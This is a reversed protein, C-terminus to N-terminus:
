WGLRVITITCSGTGGRLAASHGEPTYIDIRGVTSLKSGGRDVVTYNTGDVSIVSGLPLWNCAVYYPNPMGNYVKKGSATVGNSKGCCVACACYHTYKGSIKQGLTFGDRSQVGNPEVGASKTGVYKIETVPQKTVASSLEERANEEGNVYTIKYTVLREGDVGQTETRTEGIELSSDTKTQTDHEITETVTVTKVETRFVNIVTGDEVVTDADPECYDNDGLTIGALSIAEAVTVDSVHLSYTENDAYITVANPATVTIVMGNEVADNTDYNLTCGSIDIELETFAEGVTDAYVDYAQIVDGTKINVTNLRDVVITGGEGSTFGAINLKDNPGLTINAENLIEIPETEETTVTYETGNDNIVVNYESAMDAFANTAFICFIFIFATVAAVMARSIHRFSAARSENIMKIEKKQVQAMINATSFNLLIMKYKLLLFDGSIMRGAFFNAKLAPTKESCM